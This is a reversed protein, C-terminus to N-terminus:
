DFLRKCQRDGFRRLCDVMRMTLPELPGSEICAVITMSPPKLPTKNGEM